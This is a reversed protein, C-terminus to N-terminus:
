FVLKVTAIKYYQAINLAMNRDGRRIGCGCHNIESQALSQGQCSQLWDMIPEVADAHLLQKIAQNIYWM